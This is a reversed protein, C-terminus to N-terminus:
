SRDEDVLDVFINAATPAEQHERLRKKDDTESMVM